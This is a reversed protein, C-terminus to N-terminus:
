LLFHVVTYIVNAVIVDSDPCAKHRAQDLGVKLHPFQNRISNLAQQALENRHVLVLIQTAEPTPNPLHKILNSFIVTKGAGVPLSVAM